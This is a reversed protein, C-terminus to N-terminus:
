IYIWICKYICICIFIYICKYIHMYMNYTCMHIYTYIYMNIYRSKASTNDPLTIVDEEITIKEIESSIVFAIDDQGEEFEEQSLYGKVVHERIMILLEEEEGRYM